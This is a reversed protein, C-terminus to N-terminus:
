RSWRAWEKGAMAQWCCLEPWRAKALISHEGDTQRDRARRWDRLERVAWASAPEIAALLTANIKAMM